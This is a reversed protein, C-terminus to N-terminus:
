IYFNRINRFICLLSINKDYCVIWASGAFNRNYRWDALFCFFKFAFNGCFYDCVFCFHRKQNKQLRERRLIYFFLRQKGFVNRFNNINFFDYAYIVLRCICSRRRRYIKGSDLYRGFQVVTANCQVFYATSCFDLTKCNYKRKNFRSKGVSHGKMIFIWLFNELKKLVLM